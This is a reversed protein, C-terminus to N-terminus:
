STPKESAIRSHVREIQDTIFHPLANDGVVRHRTGKAIMGAPQILSQRTRRLPHKKHCCADRLYEFLTAQNSALDIRLGLTSSYGVTGIGVM